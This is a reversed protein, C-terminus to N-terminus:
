FGLERLVHESSEGVVGCFVFIGLLSCIKRRGRGWGPKRVAQQGFLKGATDGAAGSCSHITPVSQFVFIM